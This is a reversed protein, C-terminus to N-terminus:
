EFAKDEDRVFLVELYLDDLEIVVLERCTVISEFFGDLLDHLVVVEVSQSLERFLVDCCILQTLLRLCRSM